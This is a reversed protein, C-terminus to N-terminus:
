KGFVVTGLINLYLYQTIYITNEASSPAGSQNYPGDDNAPTNKKESKGFKPWVPSYLANLLVTLWDSKKWRTWM